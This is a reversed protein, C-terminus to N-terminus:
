QSPSLPLRIDTPYVPSALRSGASSHKGQSVSVFPGSQMSEGDKTGSDGGTEAWKSCMSKSTIVETKGKQPLLSGDPRSRTQPKPAPVPIDRVSSLQTFPADEQLYHRDGIGLPRIDKKKKRVDTVGVEDSDNSTQPKRIPRQSGSSLSLSHSFHSLGWSRLVVSAM